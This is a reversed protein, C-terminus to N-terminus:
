LSTEVSSNNDRWHTPSMDHMKKFQASFHYPDAFGCEESIAKITLESHAALLRCAKEMRKNLITQGPSNGMYRTFQHAFHSVSLDAIETLEDVNLDTADLRQDIHGMVDWLWAPGINEPNVYLVKSRIGEEIFWSLMTLLAANMRLKAWHNGQKFQKSARLLRNALKNTHEIKSSSIIAPWQLNKLPDYGEGVILSFHAGIMKVGQQDFPKDHEHFAVGPGMFFLDGPKTHYLTEGYVYEVGGELVYHFDYDTFPEHPFVWGPEHLHISAGRTEVHSMALQDSLWTASYTLQQETISPKAESM